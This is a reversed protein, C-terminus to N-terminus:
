RRDDLGDEAALMEAYDDVSAFTPLSRMQSRSLRKRGGSQGARADKDKEAESAEDDQVDGESDDFIGEFSGSESGTDADLIGDYSMGDESDPYDEMEMGSEEDDDAGEVEPRSNVL